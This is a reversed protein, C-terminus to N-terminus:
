LEAAFLIRPTATNVNGNGRMFGMTNAPFGSGSVDGEIYSPGRSYATFTINAPTFLTAVGSFSFALSGTATVTPNARMLTPAPALWSAATASNARLFFLGAWPNIGRSGSYVFFFRACRHLNLPLPEPEYLGALSGQNLMPEAVVGGTFELQLNDGAHTFTIPSASYLGEGIRAQASGTWSLTYVKGSVLDETPLIQLLSGATIEVSKPAADSAFALTCGSAGAKWRDLTYAGAAFSGPAVVRQNLQFSANYLLNQRPLTTGNGNGNGNGNSGCQCGCKAAGYAAAYNHDTNGMAAALAVLDTAAAAGINNRATLKQANTLAQAEDFRVRNALSVLLTAALNPDTGLADSLEKLTNLAAGAGDVLESKLAQMATEISDFIKDASWTVTTDGNGVSDDIVVGGTTVMGHLEAIAAVLNNKAATPLLCLNGQACRLAKVDAGIAQALAVIRTEITM